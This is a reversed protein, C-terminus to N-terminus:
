KKERPKQLVVIFEHVKNVRFVAPYGLPRLNNYESQRNWIILDDFIFGLSKSRTAIDSHLPFFQNKKRLDMVIVCCYAGAKLVTFVDALVRDLADLFDEYVAITGLDGDENGYHRIEKYDATRRQNLIDWYPPSTICLDITNPEIHDLMSNASAQHVVGRPSGPEEAVKAIRSTAMQAFEEVLEFGIGKKGLREASVLTSGSGSFPDLVTEAEPRLFTAILRDCLAGPFMAPHKLRNEEASKRIDSWVSISNQIWRKGDLTNCHPVPKRAVKEKAPQKTKGDSAGQNSVPQKTKGDRAGQNSVPPKTKGDRAGQNSVPPTTKGDRTDQNSVPPTTKGDRADQNSVPPTTKGDRTDQNSVPRTTKGDRADQNSVPPESTRKKTSKRKPKALTKGTGHITNALTSSSIGVDRPRDVRKRKSSTDSSASCPFAHSLVRNVMVRPHDHFASVRALKAVRLDLLRQADTRRITAYEHSLELSEFWPRFAFRYTTTTNSGIRRLIDV